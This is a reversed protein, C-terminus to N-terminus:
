IKEFKKSKRLNEYFRNEIKNIFFGPNSETRKNYTYYFCPEIRNNMINNM